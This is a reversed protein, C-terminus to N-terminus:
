AAELNRLMERVKGLPLGRREALDTVFRGLITDMHLFEDASHQPAAWDLAEDLAAGKFSTLQASYQDASGAIHVTEVFVPHDTEPRLARAVAQREAKATTMRSGLIVQDTEPLNLGAQATGYTAIAAPVRGTRYLDRIAAYRKAISIKGHLVLPTITIRKRVETALLSALGPNEVYVLTRQGSDVLTAIRDALYLQKSTLGGAYQHNVYKSPAQPLNLARVVAQFRLLIVMLSRGKKDMDGVWGAFDDAVRLYHSLHSASWELNTLSHEVKHAPMHPSVAPEVTTRRKLFPAILERYEGVNEIVPIERKAGERLNEKFEDVVWEFSVYKEIFASIGRTAYEVSKVHNKELYAGRYGHPQEATADGGVYCLIPLIDRPTNAVPTGSLVYRRRGSVRAVAKSRLSYPNALSEGEDSIVMGIRRRLRHAYTRGNTRGQPSSESDDTDEEDQSILDGETSAAGLPMRLRQSSIINIRRLDRLDEECAIVKYLAPDLGMRQLQDVFEPVLYSETTVLGHKVGSTLILAVGLRSKGLGMAWAVLAGRPKMLLEVLDEQQFRWTLVKAAESREFRAFWFKAVDPFKKHLGDAVQVWASDAERHACVFMADLQDLNLEYPTGNLMARFKDNQLREFEVEAGAKIVPATWKSPDTLITKRAKAKVVPSGNSPKWVTHSLPEIAREMRRMRMAVYEWFGPRVDVECDQDTILALMDRISLTPDDQLLHVDVDLQAQGAHLYGKPLRHEPTSYIRHRLIANMVRAQAFGCNFGLRIKRGDHGVTVKNDGTVPRTISPGDDTLGREELRLIGRPFELTLHPVEPREVTDEIRRHIRRSRLNATSGFVLVSVEVCAGESQFTKTPLDFRATLRSTVTCATRDVQSPDDWLSSAVGRPLLAVVLQAAALAQAVAYYDSQATTDPGLTGHQTCPYPQMRVSNLRLSFPPNLLVVHANKFLLNEMGAHEFMCEFGAQEFVEKVLNIADPDTDAGGVIHKAPDCFQLLRGSGVSTDFVSAKTSAKDAYRALPQEVLSWMFRAVPDPTWFQGQHRRRAEHLGALSDAKAALSGLSQLERLPAYWDNM